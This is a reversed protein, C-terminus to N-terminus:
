LQGLAWRVSNRLGLGEIHVSHDSESRVVERGAFTAPGSGPDPRYEIVAWAPGQAIITHGANVREVLWASFYTGSTM